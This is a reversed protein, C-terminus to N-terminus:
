TRICMWRCIYHKASQMQEMTSVSMNVANIVNMLVGTFNDQLAISASIGGM